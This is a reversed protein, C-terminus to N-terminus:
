NEKEMISVLEVSFTAGGAINIAQFYIREVAGLDIMKFFWVGLSNNAVDLSFGGDIVGDRVTDWPVFGAAMEGWDFGDWIWVVIKASGLPGATNKVKLRYLQPRLGGKGGPSLDAIAIGESNSTPDGIAPSSSPAATQVTMTAKLDPFQKM